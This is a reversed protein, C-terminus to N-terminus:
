SHCCTEVRGLWEGQVIKLKPSVYSQVRFEAFVEGKKLGADAFAQAPEDMCNKAVQIVRVRSRVTATGHFYLPHFLWRNNELLSPLM